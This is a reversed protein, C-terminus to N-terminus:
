VAVRVRRALRRAQHRTRKAAPRASSRSWGARRWNRVAPPKAPPRAVMM